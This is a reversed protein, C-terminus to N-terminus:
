LTESHTMNEQKDMWALVSEMRYFIRGATRFHPLHQNIRLLRITWYSLGLEHALERESLIKM